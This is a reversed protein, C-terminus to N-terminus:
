YYTIYTYTTNNTNNNIYTDTSITTIMNIYIIM